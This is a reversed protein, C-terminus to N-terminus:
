SDKKSEKESQTGETEAATPSSAKIPKEKQSSPRSQRVELALRVAAGIGDAALAIVGTCALQWSAVSVSGLPARPFSILWEAYYPFWGHPLWFMPERAFWFPLFWRAGTTSLWRVTTVTKDFSAKTTDIGSETQCSLCLRPDAQTTGRVSPCHTYIPPPSTSMKELEELMKDHQRRLKAWKAFEDQSSTANLDRRM